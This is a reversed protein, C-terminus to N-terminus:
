QIHVRPSLLFFLCEVNKINEELMERKEEEILQMERCIFLQVTVPLPAVPRAGLAVDFPRGKWRGVILLHGACLVSMQMYSSSVLCLDRKHIVLREEEV